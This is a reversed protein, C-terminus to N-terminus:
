QQKKKKFTRNLIIVGFVLIVGGTIKLRATTFPEDYVTIGLLTSGILLILISILIKIYKM